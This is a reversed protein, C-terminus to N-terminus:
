FDAYRSLCVLSYPQFCHPNPFIFLFILFPGAPLWIYKLM